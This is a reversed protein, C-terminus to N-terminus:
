PANGEVNSPMRIGSGHKRHWELEDRNVEKKGDDDFVTVALSMRIPEGQNTGNLYRGPGVIEAYEIRKQTPTPPLGDKPTPGRWAWYLIMDQWM